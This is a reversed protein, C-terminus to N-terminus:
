DKKRSFLQGNLHFNHNNIIDFGKPIKRGINVMSPLQYPITYFQRGMARRMWNRLSSFEAAEEHRARQQNELPILWKPMKNELPHPIVNVTLKKIMDRYCKEKNVASTFIEVEHGFRQLEFALKLIQRQGGGRGVLPTQIMAVKM